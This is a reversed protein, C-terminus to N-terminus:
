KGKGNNYMDDILDQHARQIVVRKMKLAATLMDNEPTWLANVIRLRQPIEFNVLKSKKCYEVVSDQVAKLVPPESIIKEYDEGLGLEKGLAKICKENGVVLLVVFAQGVQGYCMCMDVYPSLKGASEVKSLAVYEGQPGKWLDKKRDVIQLTGNETIQGIDGSCFWRYGDAQLYEEQNKKVLEKDNENLNDPDPIFYGQSVMPGGILVEGRPKGIAPNEKDSNLYLGEPWDRLRIVTAM